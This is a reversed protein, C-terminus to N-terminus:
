AVFSNQIVAAKPQPALESMIATLEQRIATIQRDSGIISPAPNQAVRSKLKLEDPIIGDVVDRAIEGIVEIAGFAVRQGTGEGFGNEVLPKYSERNEM